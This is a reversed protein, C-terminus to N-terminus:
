AAKIVKGLRSMESRVREALAEPPSGLPEMGAAFFKKRVDDRKLFPVIVENLRAVVADPTRAPAFIGQVSVLEYGPVIFCRTAAVTHVPDASVWLVGREDRWCWGETVGIPPPATLRDLATLLARALAGSDLGYEELVPVITRQFAAADEPVFDLQAGRGEPFGSYALLNVGADRLVGLARAGEGPRNPVQVYFYDVRRIEDPM